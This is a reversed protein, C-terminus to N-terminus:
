YVGPTNCHGERETTYCHRYSRSRHRNHLGAGIAFLMWVLSCHRGGSWASGAAVLTHRHSPPDGVGVASLVAVEYRHVHTRM